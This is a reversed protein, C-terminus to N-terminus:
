KNLKWISYNLIAAFSVWIIYPLMLLAAKKDIKAFEITTIIIFFLLLLLELFAVGYLQLGFFIPSWLYNLILQVVFFFVANGVNKGQSGHLLIRYLAAAMLFYLITWVVPFVWGPPSFVPRAISNYIGSGTRSLLGSVFGGAEIIITLIVMLPINRKGNVEFLGM